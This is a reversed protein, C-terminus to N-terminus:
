RETKRRRNKGEIRKKICASRSTDNFVFAAAYKKKAVKKEGKMM